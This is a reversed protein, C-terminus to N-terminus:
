KKNEAGRGVDLRSIDWLIITSDAGGSALVKEGPLFEIAGVRGRHGAFKCLKEGNRVGWVHIFGDGSSAAIMTGSPSFALTGLDRPTDKAPFQRVLNGTNAELLVIPGNKSISAIQQGDASLCLGRNFGIDSTKWVLRGSPLEWCCLTEEFGGVQSLLRNGESVFVVAPPLKHAKFRAVENGDAVELVRIWGFEAGQAIRKGDSSFALSGYNTGPAGELGIDAITRLKENRELDWLVIRSDSLSCALLRESPSLACRIPGADPSILHIQKRQAVDWVRATGDLSSSILRKGDKSTSLGVIAGQHSDGTRHKPTDSEGEDSLSVISIVSESGGMALSRADPSLSLAQITKAGFPFSLTRQRKGAETNDLHLGRRDYYALAGSERSVTVGRITANSAIRRTEEGSTTDLIRISREDASIVRNGDDCFSVYTVATPTPFKRLENGTTSDWLRITKDNSGTVIRSGDPSFALSNIGGGRLGDITQKKRPSPRLQLTATDYIELAATRADTTALLRGDPNFAVQQKGRLALVPKEANLDWVYLRTQAAATGAGAAALLKGDPSFVLADLLGDCGYTRLLRGTKAHWLRLVGNSASALTQGDKSYALGCITDGHRFALSGMRAVAGAPLVDTKPDEPRLAELSLANSTALVRSIAVFCCIGIETLACILWSVM